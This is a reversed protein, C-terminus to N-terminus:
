SARTFEITGEPLLYLVLARGDTVTPSHASEPGYVLWGKGRNDFRAEGDQPMIMDIEGLPHKHHPGKIDAMEVLDVSYGQLEEAPKIVRGYKIGGGEYQCMAGAQIGKHCADEIAKFLESGAPIQSNLEQELRSDLPKDKILDTVKRILTKFESLSFDNM